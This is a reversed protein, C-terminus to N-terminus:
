LPPPTTLESRRLLRTDGHESTQVITGTATDLCSLWQGGYAFTDICVTHGYDLLTGSKQSTHGVVVTKGSPHPAPDFLKRWFLTEATQKDLPTHPELGAHVFLHTATQHYPVTNTLFQWHAPPVNDLSGNYSAVTADGGVGMMWQNRYAASERAELMMLDHNGRLAVLNTEGALALLRDLVGCSNAGRDVYDGLTVVTDTADPKVAALLTELATLCGHIDGIALIRNM